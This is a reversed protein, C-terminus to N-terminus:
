VCATWLHVRCDNLSKGSNTCIVGADESHDCTHQYLANSQCDMLNTEYGNCNVDDLLIDGWGEGFFANGVADVAAPYGLQRCVVIADNLDWSDDCVTNWGGDWYVEVRGERPSSGGRLRVAGDIWYYSTTPFFDVCLFTQYLNFFGHNIINTKGLM